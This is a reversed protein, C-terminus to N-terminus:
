RGMFSVPTGQGLPDSALRRGQPLGGRNEPIQLSAATLRRKGAM